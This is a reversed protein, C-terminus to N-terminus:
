EIPLLLGNTTAHRRGTCSNSATSVAVVRVVELSGGGGASGNASCSGSGCGSGYCQFAAGRSTSAQM